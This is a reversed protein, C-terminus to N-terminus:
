FGPEVERENQRRRQQPLAAPDVIMGRAVGLKWAAIHAAYGAKSFSQEDLGATPPGGVWNYTALILEAGLGRGQHDNQICVAGPTTYYGVVDFTLERQKLLLMADSSPALWYGDRVQALEAEDWRTDINLIYDNFHQKCWPDAGDAGCLFDDLSLSERVVAPPTPM